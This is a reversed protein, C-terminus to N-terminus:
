SPKSSSKNVPTRSAALAHDDCAWAATGACIHESWSCLEAYEADLKSRATHLQHQRDELRQDADDGVLPDILLGCVDSTLTIMRRLPHSPLMRPLDWERLAGLSAYLGLLGAARSSAILAEASTPEAHETNWRYWSALGDLVDGLALGLLMQDAETVQPLRKIDSVVALMAKGLPSTPAARREAVARMGRWYRPAEDLSVRLEYLTHFRLWIMLGCWRGLVTQEELSSKQPLISDTWHAARQILAPYFGRLESAWLTLLQETKQM